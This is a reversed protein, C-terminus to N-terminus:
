KSWEYIVQEDVVHTTAQFGERNKLPEIASAAINIGNPKANKQMHGAIDIVRDTIQELPTDADIYVFGANIGCRVKFDQKIQKGHRNFEQLKEILDVAAKVADDPTRFCSMIGDPTMAYKIMGNEKLCSAVIKNYSDFDFAAIHKDEDRKMGTSDVVDIALFALQQGMNDLKNKLNAFEKLLQKRDSIKNTALAAFKTDIESIQKKSLNPSIKKRWAEYKEKEHLRHATRHLKKQFSSLFHVPILLLFFLILSSFDIQAYKHPVTMKIQSVLPQTLKEATQTIKLLTPYANIHPIFQALFMVFIFFVGILCAIRLLRIFFAWTDLMWKKM